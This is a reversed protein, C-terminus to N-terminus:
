AAETYWYLYMNTLVHMNICMCVCMCVFFKTQALLLFYICAQINLLM